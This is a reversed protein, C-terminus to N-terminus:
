RAESVRLEAATEETTARHVYQNPVVTRDAVSRSTAANRNSVKSLRRRGARREEHIERVYRIPEIEIAYRPGPPYVTGYYRATREIDARMNTQNPLVVSGSELEAIWGAQQEFMRLNSSGATNFYGAFYLGPWEPPVVRKFLELNGSKIDVIERDLFPFRIDYGTACIVTDFSGATGNAFTVEHGSAGIVGPRVDVRKYAIHNILTAHSTPHTRGKPTRFGWQEMRGHVLRTIVSRAWRPASSPLWRRELKGTIQTVPVGLFLKPVILEPSRASMTTTKAVVSLDAAIDCGSNGSGVVLVDKGRFPWPERYYHSHLVEGEFQAAFPPLVQDTLHGAAVVVSDFEEPGEANATCVEWTVSSGHGVGGAAVVTPRVSAVEAGFRIHGTVGFADAYAALYACMDEHSPFDQVDDAFPYDSFQTNRKESNIHLSAYASSRGNDNDYVWLGGVQNGIEFVTVAHGAQLLYKAACIGAAGAGIVAIRRMM